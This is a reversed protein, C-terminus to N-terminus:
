RNGSIGDEELAIRTKQVRHLVKSKNRTQTRKEASRTFKEWVSQDNATQGLKKAELSNLIPIRRVFSTSTREGLCEGEPNLTAGKRKQKKEEVVPSVKGKV